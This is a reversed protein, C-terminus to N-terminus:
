QALKRDTKQKECAGESKAANDTNKAQLKGSTQTNCEGSAV